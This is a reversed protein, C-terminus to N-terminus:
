DRLLEDHRLLCVREADALVRPDVQPRDIPLTARRPAPRRQRRARKAEAQDQLGSGIQIISDISIRDRYSTRRDEGRIRHTDLVQDAVARFDHDTQMGERVEIIMQAVLSEDLAVVPSGGSKRTM